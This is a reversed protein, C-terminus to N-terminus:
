SAREQVSSPQIDIGATIIASHMRQGVEVMLATWTEPPLCVELGHLARHRLEVDHAQLIRGVVVDNHVIPLQPLQEPWAIPVGHWRTRFWEGLVVSAERGAAMAQQESYFGFLGVRGRRVWGVQAGDACLDYAFLGNKSPKMTLNM